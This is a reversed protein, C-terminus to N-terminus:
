VSNMMQILMDRRKAETKRFMSKDFLQSVSSVMQLEEKDTVSIIRGIEKLQVPDIFVAATNELIGNVLSIMTVAKEMIETTKQEGVFNKMQSPADELVKIAKIAWESTGVDINPKYRSFISTLRKNIENHDADFAFLISHRYQSRYMKQSEISPCQIVTMSDINIYTWPRQFQILEELPMKIKQHQANSSIQPTTVSTPPQICQIFFGQLPVDFIKDSSFTKQNPLLFYSLFHAMQKSKVEFSSTIVTTMQTQLHSTLCKALFDHPFPLPFTLQKDILPSDLSSIVFTGYDLLFGRLIPTVNFIPISHIIHYKSTCAMLYTFDYIQELIFPSNEFKKNDLVIIFSYMKSEITFTCSASFRQNIDDTFSSNVCKELNNDLETTSFAFNLYEIIDIQIHKVPWRYLLYSQNADSQNRSGVAAIMFPMIDELPLTCSNADNNM